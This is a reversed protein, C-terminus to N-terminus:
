PTAEGDTSAAAVTLTLDRASLALVEAAEPQIRQLLRAPGLKPLAAFAAIRLRPTRAKLLTAAGAIPTLPAFRTAKAWIVGPANQM